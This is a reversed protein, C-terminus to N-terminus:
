RKSTPGGPRSVLLKRAPTISVFMWWGAGAAFQLAAAAGFLPMWSGTRKRSWVGLFPVIYAPVTACCNVVSALVGVDPGGVELKNSSLGSSHLCEAAKLVCYAATAHKATRAMGFVLLSLGELFCAVGTSLRRVALLTVGRALLANELGASVFVGTTAIAQPVALHAGVAALPLGLVQSYYIPAWQSLTYDATNSAVQAWILAHTAPVKFIGYEVQTDAKTAALKIHKSPADASSTARPLKSPADSALAFFAGASVAAASGYLYAISQWGLKLAMPMTVAVATIRALRGGISIFRMIWARLPDTAPPLWARQLVAVSPVLPGQCLGIACLCISLAGAGHRAAAPLVLLLANGCLNLSSM